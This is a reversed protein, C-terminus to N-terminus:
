NASPDGLKGWSELLGLISWSTPSYVKSADDDQSKADDSKEAIITMDDLCDRSYESPSARASKKPPYPPSDHLTEKRKKDGGM